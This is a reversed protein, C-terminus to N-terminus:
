ERGGKWEPDRAKEERRLEKLAKCLGINLEADCKGALDPLVQHMLEGPFQSKEVVVLKLLVKSDGCVGDFDKMLSM